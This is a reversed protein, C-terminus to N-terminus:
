RRGRRAQMREIAVDRRDRSSVRRGMRHERYETATMMAHGEAAIRTRREAPRTWEATVYGSNQSAIRLEFTHDSKATRTMTM